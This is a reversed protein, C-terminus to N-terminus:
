ATGKSAGPIREGKTEYGQSQETKWAHTLKADNQTLLTSLRGFFTEEKDVDQMGARNMKFSPNTENM